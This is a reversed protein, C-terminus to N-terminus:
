KEEIRDALSISDGAKMGARYASLDKRSLEQERQKQYRQWWKESAKRNKEKEAETLEVKPAEAAEAKSKEQRMLARDYSGEGYAADYNAAYEQKVLSRLVLGTEKVETKAETTPHQMRYAKEKIREALREACGEKWSIASKSNQEKGRWPSMDEIVQALWGYMFTVAVVNSEKGLVVHRKVKHRYMRGASMRPEDELGDFIWYWCFNAEAIARCLERQWKYMASRDIKTQERKEKTVVTGGAVVTSEVMALDLNYKALLEQARAMAQAAENDNTASHKGLNLLLQIKRVVSEDPKQDAM